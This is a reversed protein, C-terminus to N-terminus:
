AANDNAWPAAAAAAKGGPPLKAGGGQNESALRGNDDLWDVIVYGFHHIERGLTKHEFSEDRILIVPHVFGAQGDETGIHVISEEGLSRIRNASCVGSPQFEYGNGPEDLDTLTIGTINVAGKEGYAVRYGRAPVPRVPQQWMPVLERDGTDFDIWGHVFSGLNVAYRHTLPVPDRTPGCTFVGTRDDHKLYPWGGGRGGSGVDHMAARLNEVAKLKAAPLKTKPKDAV